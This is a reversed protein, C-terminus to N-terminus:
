GAHRSRSPAARPRCRTRARRSGSPARDAAAAAAKVSLEAGASVPWVVAGLGADAAAIAARYLMMVAREGADGAGAADEPVGPVASLGFLEAQRRAAEGMAKSAPGSAPALWVVAKGSGERGRDASAAGALLATTGGDSLVLSRNM